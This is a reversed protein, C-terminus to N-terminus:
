LGPLSSVYVNITGAAEAIVRLTKSDFAIDALHLSTIEATVRVGDENKQFDSIAAAIKKQANSAFPKLDISANDALVKQLQPM